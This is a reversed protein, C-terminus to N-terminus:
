SRVVTVPHASKAREAEWEKVRASARAVDEKLWGPELKFGKEEPRSHNKLSTLPYVRLAWTAGQIFGLWRFTKDMHGAHVFTEMKDLMGHCHELGHEMTDLIDDHPYDHKAIGLEEFLRRYIRIVGLVKQPTM